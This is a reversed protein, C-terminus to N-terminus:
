EAQIITSVKDGLSPLLSLQGLHSCYCVTTHVQPQTGNSDDLSAAHKQTRALAARLQDDNGGAFIPVAGPPLQVASM